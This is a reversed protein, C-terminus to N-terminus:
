INKFEKEFKEAILIAKKNSIYRESKENLKTEKNYIVELENDVNISTSLIERTQTEIDGM